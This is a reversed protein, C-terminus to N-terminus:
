FVDLVEDLEIIGCTLVVLKRSTLCYQRFYICAGDKLSDDGPDGALRLVDLPGLRQEEEEVVVLGLEALEGLDRLQFM